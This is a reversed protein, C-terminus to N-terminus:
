APEDAARQAPRRPGHEDGRARMVTIVAIALYGFAAVKPALIAFVIVLVYFGIGPAAQRLMATVEDDSVGQRILSRDRAAVARLM